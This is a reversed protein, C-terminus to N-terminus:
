SLRCCKQTVHNKLLCDNLSYYVPHSRKLAVKLASVFMPHLAIALVVDGVYVSPNESAPIIREQRLVGLIACREPIQIASLRLGCHRSNLQIIVGFLAPEIIREM